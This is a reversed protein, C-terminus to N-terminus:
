ALVSFSLVSAAYNACWACFDITPLASFMRVLGYHLSDSVVFALRSGLQARHEGLFVTLQRVEQHTRDSSSGTIDVITGTNQTFSPGSLADSVADKIEDLSVVRDVVIRPYRKQSKVYIQM